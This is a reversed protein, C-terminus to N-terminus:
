KNAEVSESSPKFSAASVDAAKAVRKGHENGIFYGIVIAGIAAQVAFLLSATEDPPSWINEFWVQHDPDIETIKESGANDAGTYDANPNILFASVCILVVAAFGIGYMMKPNM